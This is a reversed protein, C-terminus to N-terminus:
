GGITGPTARLKLTRLTAWTHDLEQRLEQGAASAASARAILLVDIAPLAEREFRFSERAIRKIRNRTVARKSVKRSVALGLRAADSRSPIWRLMFNSTRLRGSANRMAAFETARRLRAAPPLGAM